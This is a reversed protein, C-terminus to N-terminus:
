HLSSIPPFQSANWGGRPAKILLVSADMQRHLIDIENRKNPSSKSVLSKWKSRSEKKLYRSCLRVGSLGALKSGAAASTLTSGLSGGLEQSSM